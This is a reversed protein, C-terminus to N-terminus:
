HTVKDLIARFSRGYTALSFRDNAHRYTALRAEARDTPHQALADAVAGAMADFDPAIRIGPHGPSMGCNDSLVVPLGNRCLTLCGTPAAESASPLVAAAVRLLIPAFGARSYPVFGHDIVQLAPYHRELAARLARERPDMGFLHLAEAGCQTALAFALDLGKNVAGASGMWILERAASAQVVEQESLVPEFGTPMLSFLPRDGGPGQWRRTDDGLVVLHSALALDEPLYIQSHRRIGAFGKGLMGAVREAAVEERERALAPPGETCYLVRPVPRGKAAARFPAGFGLVLDHSGKGHHLTDSCSLLTVDFGVENMAALMDQCERTATTVITRETTVARYSLLASGRTRNPARHYTPLVDTLKVRDAAAMVVRRSLHLLRRRLGQPLFYPSM